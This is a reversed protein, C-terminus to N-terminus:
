EDRRVGMSRGRGDATGEDTGIGQAEEHKEVGREDFIVNGNAVSYRGAGIWQRGHLLDDLYGRSILIARVAGTGEDVMASAVACRLQGDVSQARRLPQPNAKARRGMSDSIIAVSGLLLGQGAPLFRRGRLGCDVIVGRMHTLDESLEVQMARGIRRGEYLVPLGVLNRVDRM